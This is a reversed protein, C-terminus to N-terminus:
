VRRLVAIFFGDMGGFGPWHDPRLRLGEPGIWGPEVGPLAALPATDARLGAHRALAARVQDEGEAPLLSCTCFVLRGGPALHWLARDILAAQLPVLAALAGADRVLPLDPHRRMTGTATCPADLLVAAFGGPATGWELADAALVEATLGTRALNEHLRALREPAIDVATVRAGADALQLTKGGPAACLDLVAEGPAPALARAAMAAAADQVWWAGEAFGPLASIAGPQAPLRWSGSPLARAGPPIAEPPADHRLTLDTAAGAEHAAEIARVVAGGHAAVLPARIWGPLKGPALAAWTEPPTTVVRRLVANVLGAHGGGGPLARVLAVAASVAAHPPTGLVFVEALALHLAAHVPAPPRRRLAPGLLRDARGAHRLAATALRLAAARDPPALPALPGDPAVRLDSLPRGGEHVAALLALAARRAAGGDHRDGV